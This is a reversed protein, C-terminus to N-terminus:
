VLWSALMGAVAGVVLAPSVAPAGAVMCLMPLVACMMPLVPLVVLATVLMIVVM